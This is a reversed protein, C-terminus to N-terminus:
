DMIGFLHAIGVDFDADGRRNQSLVAAAQTVQDNRKEKYHTMTTALDAHGAYRQAVEPDALALMDSINRKRVAHSRFVPVNAFACIRDFARGLSSRLLPSGGPLFPSPLSVFLRDATAGAPYIALWRRMLAASEESFAIVATGTKNTATVQYMARGNAAVLPRALSREAATRKLEALAGLRCGSDLSLSVALADRVDRANHRRHAAFLPLARAVALIDAESAARRNVPDFSRKKLAKGLNQKIWRRKKCFSWFAKHTATIGAMTGESRTAALEVFHQSVELRTISAMPRSERGSVFKGLRWRVTKLHASSSQRETLHALYRELAECLNM